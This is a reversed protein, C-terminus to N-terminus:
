MQTVIKKFMNIQDSIKLLNTDESHESEMQWSRLYLRGFFEFNISIQTVNKMKNEQSENRVFPIPVCQLCSGKEGYLVKAYGPTSVCFYTLFLLVENDALFGLSRSGAKKRRKLPFVKKL